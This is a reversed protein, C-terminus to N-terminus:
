IRLIYYGVNLKRIDLNVQTNITSEQMMKQGFVNNVTLYTPKVSLNVTLVDNALNPYLSLKENPLDNSNTIEV